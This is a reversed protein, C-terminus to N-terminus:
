LLPLLMEYATHASLRQAPQLALLGDLVQLLMPPWPHCAHGATDLRRRAAERYPPGGEFPAVGGSACEFGVWGVGWEDNRSYDLTITSGAAAGAIRALM